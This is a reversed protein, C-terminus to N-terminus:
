DCGALRMYPKLLVDINGYPVASLNQPEAPARHNYYMDVLMLSAQRLPAPVRGYAEYIDEYTRGCYNLVVEEAVEGYDDLLEDEAKFDQEIRCQAKIKELTLWKM